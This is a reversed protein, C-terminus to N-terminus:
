VLVVAICEIMKFTIANIALPTHVVCARRLKARVVPACGGRPVPRVEQVRGGASNLVLLHTFLGPLLIQRPLVCCPSYPSAWGKRRLQPLLPVQALPLGDFPVPLLSGDHLADHLGCCIGPEAKVQEFSCDIKLEM